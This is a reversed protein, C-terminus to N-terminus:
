QKGVKTMYLLWGVAYCLGGIPALLAFVNVEIGLLDKTAHILLSFSFLFIGLYFFVNSFVKTTGWLQYTFNTLILALAHIILYRLGTHYTGLQDISLKSELGHAGFAGLVVYLACLAAGTKIHLHTNSSKMTIKTDFNVM